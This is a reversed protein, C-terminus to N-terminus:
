KFSHVVSGFPGLYRDLDHTIIYSPRTDEELWLEKVKDDINNQVTQNTFFFLVIHVQDMFERFTTDTETEVATLLKKWEEVVVTATLETQDDCAFQNKHAIMVFKGAGTTCQYLDIADAGEANRFLYRGNFM